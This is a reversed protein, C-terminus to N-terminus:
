RAPATRAAAAAETRSVFLGVRGVIQDALVAALREVASQEAAVTAYESSVM